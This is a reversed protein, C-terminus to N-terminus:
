STKISFKRNKRKLDARNRLGLIVGGIPSLFFTLWIMKAFRNDSDSFFYAVIGCLILYISLILYLTM